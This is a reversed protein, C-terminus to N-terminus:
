MGGHQKYSEEKAKRAKSIVGFKSVEKPNDYKKRLQKVFWQHPKLKDKSKKIKLSQRGDEM